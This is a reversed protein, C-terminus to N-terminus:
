SYNSHNGESRSVKFLTIFDNLSLNEPRLSNDIGALELYQIAVKRNNTLRSFNNLITKRRNNFLNRVFATFADAETSPLKTQQHFDIKVIASDVKPQPKFFKKPVIFSFDLDGFFQSIVSFNNYNKTSKQATIREAVEKQMMFIARDFFRSNKFINFLIPSTIYYPLNSILFVKQQPTQYKKLLNQWDVKLIDAEVIELNPTQHNLKLYKVLEPDIEVAVVKKFYKTLQATLAGRGPGIEIVLNESNTAPELLNVIRNILHPNDIFNQGYRKKAQM